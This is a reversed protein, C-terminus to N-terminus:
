NESASRSNARLQRLKQRKATKKRKDRIELKDEFGNEMLKMKAVRMAKSVPNLLQVVDKDTVETSVELKRETFEEVAQLLAVDHQSVLSLARGARGARACRGVRHIYDSVVLPLDVNIVLEVQPIDLGRSAVDTAVLIRSQLSKFRSLAQLRQTQGLMSHLSVCDISLEQLIGAIEECKRCSGVFIIISSSTPKITLTNNKQRKPKSNKKSQSFGRKKSGGSEMFEKVIELAASSSKTGAEDDSDADELAKQQEEIVARIVGVLYCLKVQSPVFLYQQLLKAPLRQKVTLDFKVTDKMALTELEALSETLTASFLLTKRKPGMSSLICRLESEFGTTLLRDAEDLVLYQARSLNPPTPGELHHRLRGPTAIVIHPRSNLAIGQETMNSGGIVLAQRIGMPAGFAAIQESIQIALERTPTLIIGFIGYPDSSLHHMMPLAFAATKGSGTEACGMVDKGVLISPICAEQIDTPNRFGMAAVSKCIWDALGLGAFTHAQQGEKAVTPASKVVAANTDDGDGSEGSNSGSTGSSAVGNVARLSSSTAESISSSSSSLSQDRKRSGFLEMTEVCIQTEDGTEGGCFTIRGWRSKM